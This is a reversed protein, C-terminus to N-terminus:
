PNIIKFYFAAILVNGALLLAGWLARFTYPPNGSQPVPMQKSEAM